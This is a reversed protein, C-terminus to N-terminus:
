WIRYHGTLALFAFFYLCNDYYRRDGSRLPTDWLTKLYKDALEGDLVASGEAVSALMGVPHLAVTDNVPTGDILYVGGERASVKGDLFNQLNGIAELQWEDVGFWLTDLVMNPVTRYADSYYWDHRGFPKDPMYPSGDYHAYEASMGTDPHVAKHLYERSAKAAQKYFGADEEYCNESFLEYFHPLHYSPDSFDLDPVFRILHNDPDFMNRGGNFERTIMTHLLEKAEHSYNFIGEGDGWRHSAFILAMAYYEEGDPAPGDSNPKGSPDVSWAFYGANRGETMYMYTRSWKWIRDFEDKKDMQVCFMMGYSMGETRADHNGTDEMYGMDPEVLHYVRESEDGYFMTDFIEDLRSAAEADSVGIRAFANRYEGTYFSGKM